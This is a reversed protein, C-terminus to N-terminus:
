MPLMLKSSQIKNQKCFMIHNYSSIVSSDDSLNINPKNALKYISTGTINKIVKKRSKVYEAFSNINRNKYRKIYNFQAFVNDIRIPRSTETNEVNIAEKFYDFPHEQYKSFYDIMESCSPRYNQDLSLCKRIINAFELYAPSIMNKVMDDITSGENTMKTYLGISMRNIEYKHTTFWYLLVGIRWAIESWTLTDRVYMEPSYFHVNDSVCVTSLKISGNQIFLNKPHPAIHLSVDSRKLLDAYILLIKYIICAVTQIPVLKTRDNTATFIVQTFNLLDDISRINIAVNELKMESILDCNPSMGNVYEEIVAYCKDNLEFM